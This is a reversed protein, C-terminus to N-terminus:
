PLEWYMVQSVSVTFGPTEAAAIYAGFVGKRFTDDQLKAVRHGNIYFSLEEGDVWVGIRNTQNPGTLIHESGKWDVLEDFEEGDWTRVRFSGNCSIGFLYGQNPDPARFILGYRDKGRCSDGTTAKMELYFDSIKPYSMSWNEYNNAKLSKLVLAGNMVQISTQENEFTFWYSNDIFSAKWDPQGLDNVPDDSAPTPSSGQTPATTPTPSQTETPTQSPTLSATVSPTVSPTTSPTGTHAGAMVTETVGEQPTTSPQAMTLTAAVITAIADLDATAETPSVQKCGAFLLAPALILLVLWFKTLKQSLKKM